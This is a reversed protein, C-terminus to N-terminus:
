TVEQTGFVQYYIRPNNFYNSLRNLKYELIMGRKDYINSLEWKKNKNIFICDFWGDTKSTPQGTDWDFYSMVNRNNDLIDGDFSKEGQIYYTQNDLLLNKVFNNKSESDILCLPKNKQYYIYEDYTILKSDAIIITDNNYFNDQTIYQPLINIMNTEIYYIGNINKLQIATINGDNTKFIFPIPVTITQGNLDYRFYAKINKDKITSLSPINISINSQESINSHGIIASSTGNGIFYVNRYMSLPQSFCGYGYNNKTNTFMSLESYDNLNFNFDPEETPYIDKVGDKEEQEWINPTNYNIWIKINNENRKILVTVGNSTESWRNGDGIQKSNIIYDGTITYGSKYNLVISAIAVGTNNISNVKIGGNGILISLNSDTNKDYAIVVSIIDNDSSTSSLTVRHTYTDFKNLSIFMPYSSEENHQYVFSKNEDDWQWDDNGIRLGNDYIEKLSDGDESSAEIIIDEKIATFTFQGDPIPVEKDSIM